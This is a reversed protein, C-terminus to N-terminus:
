ETLYLSGRGGDLGSDLLPVSFYRWCRRMGKVVSVVILSM